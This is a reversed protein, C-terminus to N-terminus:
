TSAPTETGSQSSAKVEVRGDPWIITIPKHRKVAYDHTYWTGGRSQWTAQIPVVILEDCEDVICRNRAFHSKRVREEDGRFDDEWERTIPPHDVVVARTM